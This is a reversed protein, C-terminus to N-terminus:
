AMEQKDLQSAVLKAVLHVLNKAELREKLRDIRHEITRPSLNLQEAMERATHGEILLQVICDDTLDTKADNNSPIFFRGEVMSMCWGPRGECKQPLILRQYGVRAGVFRTRVLDLIPRRTEVARLFPPIVTEDMYTRNLAGLKTNPLEKRVRDLLRSKFGFDRVRTFKWEYPDAHDTEILNLAMKVTLRDAVIDVLEEVKLIKDRVLWLDMLEHCLSNFSTM